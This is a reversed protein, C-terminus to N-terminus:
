GNKEGCLLTLLQPLSDRRVRRVEPREPPPATHDEGRDPKVDRALNHGSMGDYRWTQSLHETLTSKEGESASWLGRVPEKGGDSAVGTPIADLRQTCRLGRGRVSAGGRSLVYAGPVVFENTELNWHVCGSVLRSDGCATIAVGGRLVVEAAAEAIIAKGCRVGLDLRDNEFFSYAMNRITVNTTNSVDVSLSTLAGTSEFESKMKQGLDLLTQAPSGAAATEAGPSGLRRGPPRRAPRAVVHPGSAVSRRAPGAPVCEPLSRGAAKDSYRYLRAEFDDIVVTKHLPTNFLGLRGNDARLNKWRVYYTPRYGANAELRRILFPGTENDEAGLDAM